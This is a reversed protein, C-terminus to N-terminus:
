KVIYRYIIEPIESDTGDLYDYLRVFDPYYVMIHFKSFNFYAEKTIPDIPRISRFVKKLQDIRAIYSQIYQFIEENYSRYKTFIIFDSIVRIFRLADPYSDTLISVLIVM